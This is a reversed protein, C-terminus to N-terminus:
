GYCGVKRAELKGFSFGSYHSQNVGVSSSSITASSSPWCTSCQRLLAHCPMAHFIPHAKAFQARLERRKQVYGSSFMVERNADDVISAEVVDDRVAVQDVAISANGIIAIEAHTPRRPQANDPVSRFASHTDAFGDESRLLASPNRLSALDGTAIM